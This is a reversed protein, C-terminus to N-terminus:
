RVICCNYRYNFCNNIQVDNLHHSITKLLLLVIQGKDQQNRAKAKTNRVKNKTKYFLQRITLIGIALAKIILVM